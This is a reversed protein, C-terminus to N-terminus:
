LEKSALVEYVGPLDYYTSKFFPKPPTANKNTNVCGEGAININIYGLKCLFEKLESQTIILGSNDIKLGKKYNITNAMANVAIQRPDYDNAKNHQENWLYVYWGIDNATLYLKGGPKLIRTMERLSTCWDTVFIVGYCFIADFFEDPYLTKELGCVKESINKIGMKDSLTQLFGIRNKEVDCAYVSHNHKSLALSWQGFGCGADLVKTKGEFGIARIREIYKELNDVFIREIFKRDNDGLNIEISSIISKIDKM